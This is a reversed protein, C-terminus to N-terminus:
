SALDHDWGDEPSAPPWDHRSASAPRWRRSRRPWGPACRRIVQHRPIWLTFVWRVHDDGPRRRETLRGCVRGGSLVPAGALITSTVRESALEVLPAQGPLHLVMRPPGDGRLRTLTLVRAGDDWGIRDVDEWGLRSWSGSGPHGDQRYIAHGTAVVMTGGVERVSALVRERPEIPVGAEMAAATRRLWALRLRCARLWARGWTLLRTGSVRGVYTGLM